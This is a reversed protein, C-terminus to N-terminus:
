DRQLPASLLEHGDLRVSCTQGVQPDEIEGGQTDLLRIRGAKEVPGEMVPVDDLRVEVRQGPQLAAHRLELKARQTFDAGEGAIRKCETEFEGIERGRDDRFDAELDWKTEMRKGFLVALLFLAGILAFFGGFAYTVLNLVTEM